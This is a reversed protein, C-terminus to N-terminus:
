LQQLTTKLPGDKMKDVLYFPRPGLQPADGEAHALSPPIAVVCIGALVTLARALRMDPDGRHDRDVMTTPTTMRDDPYLLRKDGAISPEPSLTQASTVRWRFLARHVDSSTRGRTITM